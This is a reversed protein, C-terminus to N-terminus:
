RWESDNTPKRKTSQLYTLPHMPGVAMDPFGGGTKKVRPQRPRVAYLQSLLELWFQNLKECMYLFLELLNPLNIKGATQLNYCGDFVHIMPKNEVYHCVAKRTPLSGVIASRRTSGSSSWSAARPTNENEPIKGPMSRQNYSIEELM